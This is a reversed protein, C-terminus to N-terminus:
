AASKWIPLGASHPYAMAVQVNTRLLRDTLPSIKNTELWWLFNHRRWPRLARRIAADPDQSRVVAEAGIVGGIAASVMGDAYYCPAGGSYMRKLELTGPKSPAVKGWSSAPVLAGALTEAADDVVLGLAQAVGHLEGTMTALEADKDFGSDADVVRAFIGYWNSRPSRPDAFPTFYGVDIIGGRRILPAFTTDRQLPYSIGSAAEFMPAQVALVLRRPPSSEGGLLTPKTTANVLLPRTGAAYSRLHADSEVMDEVYEVPHEALLERLGVVLRSNRMGYVLPASTGNNGGQWPGANSFTWQGDRPLAMAATQRHAVPGPLATGTAAQVLAAHDVGVASSLFDAAVGRLSVGNILRRSEQAPPAVLTVKGAFQPHKVLQAAFTQAGIGNGAIVVSDYSPLHSGTAPLYRDIFHRVSEDRRQTRTKGNADVLSM